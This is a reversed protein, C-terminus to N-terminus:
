RRGSVKTYLSQMGFRNRILETVVEIGVEDDEGVDWRSRGAIGYRAVGEDGNALPKSLPCDSGEGEDDEEEDARDTNIALISEATDLTSM